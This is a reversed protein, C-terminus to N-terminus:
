PSPSPVQNTVMLEVAFRFKPIVTTYAMLFHGEKRMLTRTIKMMGAYTAKKSDKPAIVKRTSVINVQILYGFL